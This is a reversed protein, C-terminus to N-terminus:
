SWAADLLAGLSERRRQDLADTRAAVEAVVRAALVYARRLDEPVHRLAALHREVTEVDGRAIPGTLTPAAAGAARANAVVGAALPGLVAAPDAVGAAALMAEGAALVAVVGNGATTAAAHWLPRLSESVAVPVGALETRVFSQAWGDLGSSCTVGWASGPLRRVATDVDPCAQVPHLACARAGGAVVAGLPAVGLSGALHWVVAGPELKGAISEAILEIAAETAGIVVVDAALHRDLDLPPAELREAARARSGPSRSWVGAMVNGRRRLLLCAATGVRGAGVLAVRYPPEPSRSM